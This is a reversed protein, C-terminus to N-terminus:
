YMLKGDQTVVGIDVWNSGTNGKSFDVRFGGLSVEGMNRMAQAIDRASSGSARRAAQAFVQATIYGEVHFSTYTKVEPQYRGMAKSFDRQLGMRIGSPNPFTQAIGVGRAGEGAMKTLAPAPLYSLTFIQQSVGAKRLAAIGEGAFKPMGIVLASKAKANALQKAAAELAAPDFASQVGVIDMGGVAKAANQASALGSTGMPIDQYLVAMSPITLTKAHAVIKEIQQEDGARVHFWMPHGPSRLVSAGPVANIVVLDNSDLLKNDLVGKLTASGLPSLLAVAGAARATKLQKVFGEYSYADDLSLMKLKRGNIGGNDNIEGVAAKMGEDLQTADPVPLVTFPGIHAVVVDNGQAQAHCAFVLATLMASVMFIRRRFSM